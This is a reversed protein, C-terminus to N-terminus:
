KELHRKVIEVIETITKDTKIIYDTVGLQKAREIEFDQGLNTLVIIKLGHLAPDKQIEELIEFGSKVPILLDLILLDPKRKKLELLCEECNKVIKIEIDLPKFKLEYIDSFVKEDEAILLYKKGSITQEQM